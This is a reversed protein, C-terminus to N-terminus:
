RRTAVSVERCRRKPRRVLHIALVYVAISLKPRRRKTNEYSTALTTSTEQQCRIGATGDVETLGNRNGTRGNLPGTDYTSKDLATASTGLSAAIISSRIGGCLEVHLICCATYLMCHVVHQICCTQAASPSAPTSRLTTLTDLTNLTGRTRRLHYVLRTLWALSSTSAEHTVSAGPRWDRGVLRCTQRVTILYGLAAVDEDRIIRGASLQENWAVGKVM